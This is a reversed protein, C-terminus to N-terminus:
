KEIGNTDSCSTEGELDHNGLILSVPVDFGQLYEFATTFCDRSGAFV